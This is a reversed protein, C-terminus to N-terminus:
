SFWVYVIANHPYSPSISVVTGPLGSTTSRPSVSSAASSSALIARWDMGSSPPLPTAFPASSGSPV